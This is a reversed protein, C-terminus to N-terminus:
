PAPGPSSIQPARWRPGSARTSRRRITRRPWRLAADSRRSPAPARRGRGLAGRPAEAAYPPPALAVQDPELHPPGGGDRRQAPPALRRARRRSPGRPERQRRPGDLDRLPLPGPDALDRPLRDPPLDAHDHARALHAFLRAARRLDRGLRRAHHLRPDGPEHPRAARRRLPLDRDPPGRRRRLAPLLPLLAPCGVGDRAAIRVDLARLSEDASSRARRPAVHLHLAALAVPAALRGGPPGRLPRRDPVVARAAGAGRLRLRQRHAAAQRRPAHLAARHRPGGGSLRSRVREETERVCALGRPRM